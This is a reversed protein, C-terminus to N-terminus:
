VYEVLTETLGDVVQSGQSGVEFDNRKEHALTGLTRGGDCCCCSQFRLCAQAHRKECVEAAWTGLQKCGAHYQSVQGVEFLCENVGNCTRM